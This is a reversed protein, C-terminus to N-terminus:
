REKVQALSYIPLPEPLAAPHIRRGQRLVTSLHSGSPPLPSAAAAVDRGHGAGRDPWGSRPRPPTPLDQEPRGRTRQRGAPQRRSGSLRRPPCTCSRPWRPPPSTAPLRSAPASRQRWRADRERPQVGAAHRLGAHVPQEVPMAVCSTDPVTTTPWGAPAPRVPCNDLATWAAAMARNPQKREGALQHRLPWPEGTGAAEGGTSVTAHSSPWARVSRAHKASASSGAARRPM